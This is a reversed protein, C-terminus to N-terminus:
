GQDDYTNGTEEHPPHTEAFPTYEKEIHEEPKKERHNNALLMYGMSAVILSLVASIWVRWLLPVGLFPVVIGLIGLVVITKLKPRMYISIICCQYHYWLHLTGKLSHQGPADGSPVSVVPFYPPREHLVTHKCM